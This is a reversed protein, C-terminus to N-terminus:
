KVSHKSLKEKWIQKNYHGCLTKHGNKWLDHKVNQVETEFDKRDQCNILARNYLSQVIGQKVHLPHNSQFHLYRGM